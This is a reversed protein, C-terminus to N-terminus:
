IFIPRRRLLPYHFRQPQRKYVDTQLRTLKLLLVLTLAIAGLGILLELLAISTGSFGVPHALSAGSHLLGMVASVLLTLM